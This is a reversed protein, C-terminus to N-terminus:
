RRRKVSNLRIMQGLRCRRPLLQPSLRMKNLNM